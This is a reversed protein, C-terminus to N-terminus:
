AALRTDVGALDIKLGRRVLTQELVARAELPDAGAHWVSIRGLVRDRGDPTTEILSSVVRLRGPHIVARVPDRLIPLAQVLDHELHAAGTISLRPLPRGGHMCWRWGHYDSAREYINRCPAIWRTRADGAGDRFWILWSYSTASSRKPDLRGAFMPVREAHVAIIDPPCQSFLREYRGQGELFATRVIVAVGRRAFRRVHHIFAEGLTFPPNTCVWDPAEAEEPTWTLFDRISIPQEYIDRTGYDAVDAVRVHPTFELMTRAIDGAGAAPECSVSGSLADVGLIRHVLARVAWPQTPPFDLAEPASRRRERVATNYPLSLPM